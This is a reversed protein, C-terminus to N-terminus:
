LHKGHNRSAMSGWPSGTEGEHIKLDLFKSLYPFRTFLEQCQPPEEPEWGDMESLRQNHLNLSARVPQGDIWAASYMTNM